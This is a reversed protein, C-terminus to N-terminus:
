GAMSFLSMALTVGLAPHSKIQIMPIIKDIHGRSTALLKPRVSPDLTAGAPASYGFAVLVCFINTSTLVYQVLYLLFGELAEASPIALALLLFGIHSITSYALLRKIRYQAVGVVGGILLSIMASVILLNGWQGLAQLDSLLGLIAVKPMIALWTTVITPVGEYVDPAWNHFPAAALKFLLAIAILLLGLQIAPTALAYCLMSVGEFSSVGTFAYLLTSGLLLLSSSLAGLLFYKLGASTAAESYRYLTALIYLALTQLEISLFMSLLDSSSVFSSMGLTTLLIILPYENCSHQLLLIMSGGNNKKLACGQRNKGVGRGDAATNPPPPFFQTFFFFCSGLLLILMACGLIFCDLAQSLLTVHFLGGSVGVGVGIPELYFTNWALLSSYLLVLIAIRSFLISTIVPSRARAILIFLISLILM